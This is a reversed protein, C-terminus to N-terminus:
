LVVKIKPKLQIATNSLNHSIMKKPLIRLHEKSRRHEPAEGDNWPDLEEGDQIFTKSSPSIFISWKAEEENLPHLM